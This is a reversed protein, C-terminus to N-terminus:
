IFLKVEGHRMGEFTFHSYYEYHKQLALRMENYHAETPCLIPLEACFRPLSPSLLPKDSFSSHVENEAVCGAGVQEIGKVGQKGGDQDGKSSVAREEEMLGSEELGM